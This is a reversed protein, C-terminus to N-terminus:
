RGGSGSATAQTTVATATAGPQALALRERIADEDVRYVPVGPLAVTAVDGLPVLVVRRGRGLLQAIAARTADSVRPTVILIVGGRDGIRELRVLAQSFPRTSMLSLRALGDLCRGLQGAGHLPAYVLSSSTGSELGNAMVGIAYGAGDAWALISAAAAITSEALVSDVGEWVREHTDLNVCVLVQRSTAPEELRTQLTGLRATAKWSIARFPDGPQYDRVGAIRTPDTYLHRDVRVDGLRERANALPLVPVVLPYVVIPEPAAGEMRVTFFGFPDGARITIPSVHQVGRAPCGLDSRWTLRGFPALASSLRLYQEGSLRRRSAEGVRLGPPLEIELTAWPVPILKRNVVTVILEVADGPLAHERDFRASVTVANLAVRAWGWALGASILGLLGIIALGSRGTWAGVLAVIAAVAFWALGVISSQLRPPGAGPGELQRVADLGAVIRERRRDTAARDTFERM